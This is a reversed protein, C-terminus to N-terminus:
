TGATPTWLALIASCMQASARLREVGDESVTMPYRGATAPEGIVPHLAAIIGVMRAAHALYKQLEVGTETSAPLPKQQLAIWLDRMRKLENETPTRIQAVMDNSM